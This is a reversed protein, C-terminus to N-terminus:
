YIIYWSSSLSAVMFAGVPDPDAREGSAVPNVRDGNAFGHACSSMPTM